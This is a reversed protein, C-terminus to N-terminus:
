RTKEVMRVIAGVAAEPQDAQISHGSKDAFLQESHSSLQVLDAQGAQWNPQHDLSSSLVILPLDGFTKAARAQAGGEAMGQAEDMYAQWYQPRAFRAVYANWDPSGADASGPLNIALRMIGFRALWAVFPLAHSQSGAVTETYTPSPTFQRPNMSEILVVGVVDSPYEHAFVRVTLGGLSHGVLVYPGPVSARQLLTHLENAFQGVNRPLPGDESWGSGARDYTCVRTTKAVDRQVSGWSTSWAGLGTDIVVTPSGTGICNIHLRHGGVDVLQGPPPYAQAEAAEAVSEYVAGLLLLGLLVAVMGGLWALIRRGRRRPKSARDPQNETSM